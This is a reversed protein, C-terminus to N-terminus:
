ESFKKTPLTTTSTSTTTRTPTTKTNIPPPPPNIPPPPSVQPPAEVQPPPDVKTTAEVGATLEVRPQHDGKTEENKVEVEKGVAKVLEKASMEGVEEEGGGGEVAVIGKRGERRMESKGNTGRYEEPLSHLYGEGVELGLPKLTPFLVYRVCDLPGNYVYLGVEDVGECVEEFGKVGDVNRDETGLIWEGEKLFDNTSLLIRLCNPLDDYYSTPRLTLGLLGLYSPSPKPLVTIYDRRRSKLNFIELKVEKQLSACERIVDTFESLPRSPTHISTIISFYTCLVPSSSSPSSPAVNLIRYGFYNAESNQLTSDTGGM